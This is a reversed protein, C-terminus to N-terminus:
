HIVPRRVGIFRKRWYSNNLSSVLVRGTRRSPAHIFKDDELFIGVHSYPSGSTNFFVLDGSKLDYKPVSPLVSAMERATRPLLIGQRGYVHKVFGSCDFGEDPTEKGYRYPIGQLSLAYEILPERQQVIPKIEPTTACGSLIALFTLFSIRLLLLHNFCFVLDLSQITTKSETKAISM